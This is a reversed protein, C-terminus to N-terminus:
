IWKKLPCEAQKIKVKVVMFCGCQKCQKTLPILEPCKECITFRNKAIEENVHNDKDLLHWPRSSGLKQKYEQWASSM